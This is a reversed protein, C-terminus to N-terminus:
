IGPEILRQWTEFFNKENSGFIHRDDLGPVQYLNSSKTVDHCRKEPNPKFCVQTQFGPWTRVELNWTKWNRSPVSAFNTNTSRM